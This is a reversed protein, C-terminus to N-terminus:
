ADSSLLFSDLAAQFDRSNDAGVIPTKLVPHISTAFEIVTEESEGPEAMHLVRGYYETALDDLYEPSIGVASMKVSLTLSESM